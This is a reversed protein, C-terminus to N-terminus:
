EWGAEGDPTTQWLGPLKWRAMDVAIASAM